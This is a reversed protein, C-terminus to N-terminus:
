LIRGFVDSTGQYGELETYTKNDTSYQLQYELDDGKSNKAVDMTLTVMEGNKYDKKGSTLNYAAKAPEAKSYLTYGQYDYETADITTRGSSMAQVRFYYIGEAPPVFVVSSKTTFETSIDTWNRTGQLRYSFSYTPTENYGTMNDASASLTIGESPVIQMTEDYGIGTFTVSELPMVSYAKVMVSNSEDYLSATAIGKVRIQVAYQYKVDVASTPPTLTIETIGRKRIIMGTM